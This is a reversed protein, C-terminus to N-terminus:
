LAYSAILELCSNGLWFGGSAVIIFMARKVNQTLRHQSAIMREGDDGSAVLSLLATSNRM